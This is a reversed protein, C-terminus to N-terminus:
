TARRAARTPNRRIAFIGNAYRLAKVTHITIPGGQPARNGNGNLVAVIQADSQGEGALRSVTETMQKLDSLRAFSSVHVRVDATTDLGGRWVVRVHVKDTTIRRLVVKDIM